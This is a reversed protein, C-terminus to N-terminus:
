RCRAHQWRPEDPALLSVLRRKAVEIRGWATAHAPDALDPKRRTLRCCRCQPPDGAHADGEAILWNCAAASDLNMCRRYRPASRPAGVQRWWGAARDPQLPLLMLRATDYGLPTHCALCESNRFFVPRGCRCHFARGATPRFHRWLARSPSAKPTPM